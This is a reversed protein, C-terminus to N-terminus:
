LFLMVERSWARFLRHGEFNRLDALVARAHSLLLASAEGLGSNAERFDERIGVMFRQLLRRNERSQVNITGLDNKISPPPNDEQCLHLGM